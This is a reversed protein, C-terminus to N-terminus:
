RVSCIMVPGAQSPVRSGTAIKRCPSVTSATRNERPARTAAVSSDSRVGSTTPRASASRATSTPAAKSRAMSPSTSSPSTMPIFGGSCHKLVAQRFAASGVPDGILRQFCQDYWATGDALRWAWCGAGGSRCASGRAIEPRSRRLDTSLGLMAAFMLALGIGAVLVSEFILGTATGVGSALTLLLWFTSVREYLRVMSPRQFGLGLLWGISRPYRTAGIGLRSADRDVPPAYDTRGTANTRAPDTFRIPPDARM